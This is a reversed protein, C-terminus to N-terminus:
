LFQDISQQQRRLALRCSSTNCNTWLSSQHTGQKPQTSNCSSRGRRPRVPVSCSCCSCSHLSTRSKSPFGSGFGFGFIQFKIMEREREREGTGDQVLSNQPDQILDKPVHSFQFMGGDIGERIIPVEQLNESM